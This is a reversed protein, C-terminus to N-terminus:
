FRYAIGSFLGISYPHTSIQDNTNISNLFYKVRPEMHISLHRSVPMEFAVGIIGAFNFHEVGETPGLDYSNNSNNIVADNGVLINSSFGGTISLDVKRDILKYYAMFPVEIYNYRQEVIAVQFASSNIDNSIGFNESQGYVIAKSLKTNPQKFYGNSNSGPINQYSNGPSPAKNVGISNNNNEVYLNVNSANVFSYAGDVDQGTKSYYLGSEFRWRHFDIAINLGGSYALIPKETSNYFNTPVNSNNSQINRYSYLPAANGNLIWSNENTEMNNEVKDPVVEIGLAFNINEDSLSLKQSKAFNDLIPKRPDISALNYEQFLNGKLVKTDPSNNLSGFDAAIVTSSHLIKNEPNPTQKEARVIINNNKNKLTAEQSYTNELIIPKEFSVKNISKAIKEKTSFAKKMGFYYGTFLSLIIAISAAFSISIRWIVRLKKQRLKEDIKNWADSPASKEYEFLREKFYDDIYNREADM